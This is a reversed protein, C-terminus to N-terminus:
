GYREHTVEVQEFMSDANWSSIYDEEPSLMTGNLLEGAVATQTPRAKVKALAQQYTEKPDPQVAMRGVVSRQWWKEIQWDKIDPGDLPDSPCRESICFALSQLFSDDNAYCEPSTEFDGGGMDMGAMHHDMSAVESCELQSGSFVDRCATCCTPSYMNIGYGILGHGARKADEGRAVLVNTGITLLLSAKTFMIYFSYRLCLSHISTPFSPKWLIGVTSLLAAQSQSVDTFIARSELGISDIELEM